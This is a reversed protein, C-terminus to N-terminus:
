FGKRWYFSKSIKGSTADKFIKILVSIILFYINITKNYDVLSM